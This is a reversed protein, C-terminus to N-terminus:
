SRGRSFSRADSRVYEQIKNRTFLKADAMTATDFPPSALHRRPSLPPQASSTGRGARSM